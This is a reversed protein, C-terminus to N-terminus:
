DQKMNMMKLRERHVDFQLTQGYNRKLDSLAKQASSANSVIRKAMGSTISFLLAKIARDINADFEKIKAPYNDMIGDTRHHSSLINKLDSVWIGFRERRTGPDSTMTLDKTKYNKACKTLSKLIYRYEKDDYDTNYDSEEKSSDSFEDYEKEKWKLKRRMSGTGKKIKKPNFNSSQYSTGKQM